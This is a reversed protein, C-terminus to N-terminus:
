RTQQMQKVLLKTYKAAGEGSLHCHDVFDVDTFQILSYNDYFRVHPLNKLKRGLYRILKAKESDYFSPHVPSFFVIIEKCLDKKEALENAFRDMFDISASDNAANWRASDLGFEKKPVFVVSGNNDFNLAQYFDNKPNSVINGYDIVQKRYTRFDQLINLKSTWFSQNFPFGPKHKIQSNGFDSFHVNCIITNEKKWIPFSDFDSFRMGWSALNLVPQGVSASIGIADVNNLSMSSGILYFRTKDWNVKREILFKSKANFSISNSFFPFEFQHWYFYVFSFVSVTILALYLSLRKLFIRM